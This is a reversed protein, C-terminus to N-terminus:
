PNPRGLLAVLRGASRGDIRAAVEAWLTPLHVAICKTGHRPKGGADISGGCHDILIAKLGCEAALGALHDANPLRQQACLHEADSFHRRAAAAFDPSTSM